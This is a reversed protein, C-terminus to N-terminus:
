ALYHNSNRDSIWTSCAEPFSRLGLPFGVNVVNTICVLGGLKLLAFMILYSRSIGLIKCNIGSLERLTAHSMWLWKCVSCSAISTEVIRGIRVKQKSLLVQLVLVILHYQYAMQKSVSRIYNAIPPYRQQM